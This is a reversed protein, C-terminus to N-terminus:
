FWKGTIKNLLHSWITCFASASIWSSLIRTRTWYEPERNPLLGPCSKLAVILGVKTIFYPSTVDKLITPLCFNLIILVVQFIGASPLQRVVCWRRSLRVNGLEGGPNSLIATSEVSCWIFHNAQVWSGQQLLFHVKEKFVSVVNLSTLHKRLLVHDQSLYCHWIYM